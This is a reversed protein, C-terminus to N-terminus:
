TNSRGRSAAGGRGRGDPEPDAGPPRGPGIARLRGSRVGDMAVTPAGGDREPRAPRRHPDRPLRQAHLRHRHCRGPGPARQALAAFANRAVDDPSSQPEDFGLAGVIVAKELGGANLTFTTSPADAVCCPPYDERAAGLGGPGIADALIAQVQARLGLKATRFPVASASGTPTSWSSTPSRRIGGRRDHWRRVPQVGPIQTSSPMGAVFGRRHGDALRQRGDRRDPSPDDAGSDRDAHVPLPDSAREPPGGAGVGPPSCSPPCCASRALPLRSMGARRYRLRDPERRRGTGRRM